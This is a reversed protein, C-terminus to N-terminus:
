KKNIERWIYTTPRNTVFDLGLGLDEFCWVEVEVVSAVGAKVVTNLWPGMVVDSGELIMEGDTASVGSRPVFPIGEVSVISRARFNSAATDERRADSRPRSLM